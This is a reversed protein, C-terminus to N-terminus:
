DQICMQIWGPLRKYFASIGPNMGLSESNILRFHPRCMLYHKNMMLIYSVLFKSKFLKVGLNLFRLARNSSVSLSEPTGM